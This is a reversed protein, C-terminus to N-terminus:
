SGQMGAKKYKEERYSHTRKGTKKSYKSRPKEEKEAAKKPKAAAKGRGPHLRKWLHKPCWDWGDERVMKMAVDDKVRKIDLEETVGGDKDDVIKSKKVCKM